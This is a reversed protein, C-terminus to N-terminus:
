VLIIPLIKKYVLKRFYLYINTFFYANLRMNIVNLLYYLKLFLIFVDFIYIYIYIYIM